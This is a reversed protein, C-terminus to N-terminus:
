IDLHDMDDVLELQSEMINRLRRKFTVINQKLKATDAQTKEAQM